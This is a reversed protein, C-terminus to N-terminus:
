LFVLNHVLQMLSAHATKFEQNTGGLLDISVMFHRRYLWRAKWCNLCYYIWSIEDAVFGGRTFSNEIITVIIIFLFFVKLSSSDSKIRLVPMVHKQKNPFSISDSIVIILSLFFVQSHNEKV